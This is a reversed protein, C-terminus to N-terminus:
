TEVARVRSACADLTAVVERQSRAPSDNWAALAATGIFDRLEAISNVWAMNARKAYGAADAAALQQVAADVAGLLDYGEQYRVPAGQIWGYKTILGSAAFLTSYLDVIEDVYRACDSLYGGVLLPPLTLIDNDTSVSPKSKTVSVYWDKFVKYTSLADGGSMMLELNVKIGFRGRNDPHAAVIMDVLTRYRKAMTRSYIAVAVTLGRLDDTDCSAYHRYTSGM